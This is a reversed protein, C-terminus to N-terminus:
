SGFAKEIHESIAAYDKAVVYYVYNGKQEVVSKELTAVDIDPYAKGDAIKADIRTQLFKMFTEGYDADKLKFIGVDTITQPNSNDIYVSYSEFKTFDPASTVDGYYSIILDQDLYEGPTDSSSSYLDGTDLKYEAMIEKVVTDPDIDNVGGCAVFFISISLVLVIVSIVKKM